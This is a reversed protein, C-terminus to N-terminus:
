CEKGVRREESRNYGNVSYKYDIGLLIYLLQGGRVTSLALQKLYFWDVKVKPDGPDMIIITWSM